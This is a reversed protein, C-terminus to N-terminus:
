SILFAVTTANFAMHTTIPLGLRGTRHVLLALLMGFAALSVVVLIQGQASLTPNYHSLGFVVGTIVVAALPGLRAALPRYLVGRYFVEEIVPAGVAVLLVLIAVQLGGVDRVMDQVPGEVEPSGVLPQLLIALLPIGVLQSGVGLGLGRTWDGRRVQLGLAETLTRGSRRAAVVAAGGLGLWLGIQGFALAGVGEPEDPNLALWVSALLGSVVIGGVFGAVALGVGWPPRDEDAEM